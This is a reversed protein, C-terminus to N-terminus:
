GDSGRKSQVVTVQFETGDDLRVVLGANSTLMMEDDFTSVRALGALVKETEDQDTSGNELLDVLTQVM